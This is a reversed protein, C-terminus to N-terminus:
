RPSFLVGDLQRSLISRFQGMGAVEGLAVLQAALNGVASGELSFSAVPLGAADATAQCLLRNQSGGGVILMRKFARGAVRELARVADAHGRGLSGCILRVYSALDRPARAGRKRLQADIAARMSAPNFLSPDAVDLLEEPAPAREADAILRRWAGDTVPGSSFAPLTRELLWLGLCSKLPRYRGDGMRENSIRTALAEAGLLPTASEFGLLSWTGSSLYLDSGDAAAPMAAFACATDHGPVLMSIAGRLEPIGAVPGLRRPSLAPRGFLGPPIGFYGLAARSWEKRRVDLLQSHSAISLENVMRGSLLFNFYDSIFLCRSAVRAVGPFASLTEQLQLSTNYPYNPIGTLSYVREIGRRGLRESAATTRGDRYAHVPFVPRGGRGVLVHDVAWSDVGVSAIRPFQTTARALGARVEGWIYPLDWYEHGALSRFQNPFRHVETLSLGRGSFVGVIVRGSTAGLDVAACHVSKM